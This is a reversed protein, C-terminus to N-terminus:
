AKMDGSSARVKLGAVQKGSVFLRKTMLSYTFSKLYVSHNANLIACPNLLILRPNKLFIM